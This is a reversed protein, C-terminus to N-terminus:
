AGGAGACNWITDSNIANPHSDLLFGCSLSSMGPDSPCGLGYTVHIPLVLYNSESGMQHAGFVVGAWTEASPDSVDTMMMTASVGFRLTTTDLHCQLGLTVGNAGMVQLTAPPLPAPPLTALGANVIDAFGAVGNCSWGQGFMPMLDVTAVRNDCLMATGSTIDIGVVCEIRAAKDSMASNAICGSAELTKGRCDDCFASPGCITTPTPACMRPAPDGDRCGNTTGLRCAGMLPDPTALIADTVCHGAGQIRDFWHDDCEPTAGDCDNDDEPGFFEGSGDPHIVGVCAGAPDAGQPSWRAIQTMTVPARQPTLPYTSTPELEVNIRDSQTHRLQIPGDPDRVVAYGVPAGSADSALVLLAPVQDISGPQLLILGHDGDVTASAIDVDAFVEGQMAMSNMPPMGMRNGVSDRPIFVEVTKATSGANVDLLLGSDGCAALVCVL